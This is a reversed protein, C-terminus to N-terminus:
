APHTPAPGTLPPEVPAQPPTVWVPGEPTWRKQGPPSPNMASGESIGGQAQDIHGGTAAPAAIPADAPVGPPMAPRIEGTGPVVEQIGPGHMKFAPSQSPGVVNSSSGGNPTPGTTETNDLASVGAAERRDYGAANDNLKSGHDGTTDGHDTWARQKLGHVRRFDDHLKLAIEGFGIIYPEVGPADAAAVARHEDGEADFAKARDRLSGTDVRLQESM